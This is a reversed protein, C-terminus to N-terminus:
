FLHLYVTTEGPFVTQTKSLPFPLFTFVLTADGTTALSLTMFIPIPSKHFWFVSSPHWSPFSGHAINFLSPLPLIHRFNCLITHMLHQHFLLYHGPFEKNLRDWLLSNSFVHMLIILHAWPKECHYHLFWPKPLIIHWLCRSLFDWWWPLYSPPM